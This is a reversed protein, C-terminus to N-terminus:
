AARPSANASATATSAALDRHGSCACEEWGEVYARARQHSVSAAQRRLDARGMRAAPLSSSLSPGM